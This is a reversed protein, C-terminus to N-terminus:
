GIKLEKVKVKVKKRIILGSDKIFVVM